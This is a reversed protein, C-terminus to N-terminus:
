AGESVLKRFHTEMRGADAEIGTFLKFGRTAQGVNMHGGDVTACGARRAAKLLETELPVYVVESVWLSPRLLAEPLPMGPIKLMGTPTAHILGTARSMAAKTEHVATARNGPFHRNLKAALEAARSADQDVVILQQAGLRLVADACASGAGGAGLLVVRSLDAGPLARKFGWSWGSGDTNYGVLRKGERVVTNVAGIASAEESLEDLLPIVSQKCPFTVNLGAFGMVRAARILEPLIEPGVGAEDLDILQYHLRVDHHRAEEEQLAPSLSRQIGAGILGILVKSM